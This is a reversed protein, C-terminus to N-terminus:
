QRPEVAVGDLMFSAKGETTLLLEARTKRKDDTLTVWSRGDEQHKIDLRAHNDEGWITLGAWGGEMVQHALTARTKGTRPDVVDFKSARVVRFSADKLQPTALQFAALTALGAAAAAAAILVRNFRELRRVRDVLAQTM